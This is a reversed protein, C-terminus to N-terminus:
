RRRGTVPVNGFDTNFNGRLLDGEVTGNFVLTLMQGEANVDVSFGVREGDVTVSDLRAAGLEPSSMTGSLDSNVDLNSDMAGFPTDITILWPGVIPHPASSTTACASLFVAVVLGALLSGIKTRM